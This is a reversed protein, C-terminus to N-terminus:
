FKYAAGIGVTSISTGEVAIGKYSAFVEISESQWGVKPQYLFGGDGEGDGVYLAYGLDAGVFISESISYKAAAAVPIFAANMKEVKATFAEFGPIGEFGELGTIVADVDKGGFYSYGTTVGLLFEDSIPFMYAVDVGANFSYFDGADGMPLGAHIGVKFGGEDQAQAATGLAMIAIASLILKKM